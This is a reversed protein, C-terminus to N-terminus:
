KLSDINRHCIGIITDLNITAANKKIDSWNHEVWGMQKVRTINSLTNNYKDIADGAQQWKISIIKEIERSVEEGQELDYIYRKTELAAEEV